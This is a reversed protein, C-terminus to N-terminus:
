TTKQAGEPQPRQGTPASVISLVYEVTPQSLLVCGPVSLQGNQVVCVQRPDTRLGTGHYKLLAEKATWVQLFRTSDLRGEPSLFALEAANCVRQALAPRLPRRQELDIGVPRRDTACAVYYGSHSLNFHLALGCVQPKGLADPRIELAHAPLGCDASLLELALQWACLRRIRDGDRRLTLIAEQRAPTLAAFWAQLTQASCTRIDLIRYQM